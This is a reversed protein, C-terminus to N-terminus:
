SEDSAGMAADIAADFEAKTHYTEGHLCLIGLSSDCLYRYREADARLADCEQELRAVDAVLDCIRATDRTREALLSEIADAAWCAFRYVSNWVPTARLREVLARLDDDTTVIGDVSTRIQHAAM